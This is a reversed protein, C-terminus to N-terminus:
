RATSEDVAQEIPLRVLMQIGLLAYYLAPVWVSSITGAAVPRSRLVVTGICVFGSVIGIAILVPIPWIAYAPKKEEAQRNAMQNKGGARAQEEDALRQFKPALTGGGYCAQLGSQTMVTQGNCSVNIWPLFFLPVLLWHALSSPVRRWELIMGAWGRGGGVGRLM